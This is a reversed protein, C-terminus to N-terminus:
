SRGEVVTTTMLTMATVRLMMKKATTRMMTTILPITKTKRMRAKVTMIASRTSSNMGNM